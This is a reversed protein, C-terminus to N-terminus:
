KKDGRKVENWLQDLEEATTESFTRGQETLRQEVARFRASFKQNAAALIDEPHEKRFRIFNVAAFLLDGAEERIHDENGANVAERLEDLEEQIKDLIDTQRTWDFGAKAAKKQMKEAQLLAIHRPIGDLLSPRSAGKEQKKIQEWLKVVEGSDNVNESGFVHPHRRIMKETIDAAVDQLTFAGREEAIAANLVIQMLLDGLEERMDEDSGDEVADLYEATEGLLSDCLSRHTQERDWPCGQPSRLQKMVENLRDIEKM